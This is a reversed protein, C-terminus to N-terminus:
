EEKPRRRPGERAARRPDPQHPPWGGGTFEGNIEGVLREVQQKPDRLCVRLGNSFGLYFGDKEGATVPVPVLEYGFRRRSGEVRARSCRAPTPWSRGRSGRGGSEAGEGIACSRDFRPPSAEAEPVIQRRGDKRSLTFPLRNSVVVLNM